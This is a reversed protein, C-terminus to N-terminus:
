AYACIIGGMLAMSIAWYGWNILIYKFSKREFLANISIIPLAVLVSGILGHLTGHKFTRFNQGYKIMFDKLWISLESNPDKLAPENMLTSYIHSQHIVMTYLALSLFISFVITLGFILLMNGGKIKDENMDAAKMWPTGFVKPNYWVFGIILPLISAAAIAIFNFNM